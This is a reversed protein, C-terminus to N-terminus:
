INPHLRQSNFNINVVPIPNLPHHFYHQLTVEMCLIILLLLTSFRLVAM